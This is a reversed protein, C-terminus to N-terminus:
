MDLLDRWAGHIHASAVMQRRNFFQGNVPIGDQLQRVLKSTTCASLLPAHLRSLTEARTWYQTEGESCYEELM